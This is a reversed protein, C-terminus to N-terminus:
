GYIRESREKALRLADIYCDVIANLFEGVVGVLLVPLSITVVIVTLIHKM